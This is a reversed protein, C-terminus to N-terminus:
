YVSASLWLFNVFKGSQIERVEIPLTRDDGAPNADITEGFGGLLWQPRVRLSRDRLGKYGDGVASCM